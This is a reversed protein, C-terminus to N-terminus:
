FRLSRVAPLGAATGAALVALIGALGVSLTPFALSGAWLGVAVAGAARGSGRFLYTNTFSRGLLPTPTTAQLYVLIANFFAAEVAGIAFWVVLSPLLLPGTLAAIVFLGAEGAVLGLLFGGLRRRPDAGGLLLNGAISGLAIATAFAGYVAASGAYASRAVVAILIGPAASVFGQLAAFSALQLLPRGRGGSLFRWGRAFEEAFRGDAPAAVDSPLPVLAALAVLNLFAYLFLAAPPAGVGLLVAGAAAGAVQPVGSAAATLGSALFLQDRGVLRPLLASTATWTFDWVIALAAVLVLLLPVSFLSSGVVEGLLAALAAQLAYGILAIRRPSPARDVVPGVLFALAYVGFEIGLAAGAVASSGTLRFSIWVIAIGYLTYGANGAVESAFYGRFARNAALSGRAAPPSKM